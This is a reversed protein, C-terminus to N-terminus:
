SRRKAKPLVISRNIDGIQQALEKLRAFQGTGKKVKDLDEPRVYQIKTKQKEKWTIRWYYNGSGPPVASKSLNGSIADAHRALQAVLNDRKALLRTEHQM